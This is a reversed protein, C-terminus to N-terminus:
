VIGRIKLIEGVGAPTLTLKGHLACQRLAGGAMLFALEFPTIGQKDAEEVTALGRDARGSGNHWVEVSWGVPRQNAMMIPATREQFGGCTGDVVAYVQRGSKIGSAAALISRRIYRCAPTNGDPEWPGVTLKLAKAVDKLGEPSACNILQLLTPSNM